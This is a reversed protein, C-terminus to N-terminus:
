KQEVLWKLAEKEEKFIKVAALQCGKTSESIMRNLNIKARESVPMVIAWYKWKTAAAKKIFVDQIWGPDDASLIENQRDDSLWKNADNEMMAKLGASIVARFAEGSAPKLFQHHVIKEDPYYWVTGFESSYINERKM